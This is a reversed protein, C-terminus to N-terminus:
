NECSNFDNFLNDTAEKNSIESAKAEAMNTLQTDDASATAVVDNSDKVDEATPKTTAEADKIFDGDQKMIEKKFNNKDLTIAATNDGSQAAAPSILTITKGDNNLIIMVEGNKMIVKKDPTLQEFEVSEAQEQKKANVFRDVDFGEPVLNANVLDIAKNEWANLEELTTVFQYDYQLQNFEKYSPKEAVSELKYRKINSVESYKEELNTIPDSTSIDKYEGRFYTNHKGSILKGDKVKFEWYETFTETSPASITIIGNQIPFTIPEVKVENLLPTILLDYKDYIKQKEVADNPDSMAAYEAQEEARYDAIKQKNAEIDPVSSKQKNKEADYAKIAETLGNEDDWKKTIADLEELTIKKNNSDIIAQRVIKDNGRLGVLRQIENNLRDLESVPAATTYKALLDKVDNKDLATRILDREEPSMSEVQEKTFGLGIGKDILGQSAATGLPIGAAGGAPPAIYPKTSYSAAQESQLDLQFEENTDLNKIIVLEEETGEETPFPASRSIIEIPVDVFDEIGNKTPVQGSFMFKAGKIYDKFTKKIPPPPVIEPKSLKAGENFKNILDPVTSLNELVFSKFGDSSAVAADDDSIKRENDLEYSRYANILSKFLEPANKKIDELSTSQKIPESIGPAAAVKVEPTETVTTEPTVIIPEVGAKIRYKEIIEQSKIYKADDKALVKKNIADYLVTPQFAILNDVDEPLVFVGEANDFLENLMDNSQSMKRFSDLAKKLLEIRQENVMEQVSVQINKYYQFYEPNSLKNITNVMKRSDISLLMFDKIDRFANNLDDDFVYGDKVNATHQLYKGFVEYMNNIAFSVDDGKEAFEEPTENASAFLSPADKTVTLNDVKITKIKGAKTKVKAKGNKVEVIVFEEGTKSHKVAAEPVLRKLEKRKVAEEKSWQAKQDSKVQTVFHNSADDWEELLEIQKKINEAEKVQQPTGKEMISVQTKLNTLTQGRQIPDILMSVDQAAANAIATGAKNVNVLNKYKSTQGVLHQGIDSMRKAIREYDETAFLLDSVAQEHAAYAQYEAKFEQPNARLDYMWPNHPNPLKKQVYDYKNQYSKANDKLANLKIRMQPAQDEKLQFSDALESDTLTLLDDVHETVLGTNGTKALTHLYNIQTEDGMDHALKLDGEELAAKKAENSIKISSAANQNDIGAAFSKNLNNFINNASNLVQNDTEEAQKKARESASEKTEAEKGTITEKIASYGSTLGSGSAKVAAGGAGILSGMLFGQFFTDIGQGSLQSKFGEGISSMSNYYGSQTPDSYVKTYHDMAANQIVEQANEQIAEGLNGLIYKRSWPVYSSKTLFDKVKQGKTLEGAKYTASGVKWEKAASKELKRGSGKMFAEAIKAGPRIGEFLDEFALKNTFYITLDNSLTITAKDKQAANNIRIAEAEDPMVGNQNFYEDVRKDQFDAAGSEGEMKAESHALNLERLDRYFAGFTQTTKALAGLNKVGKATNFLETTNALPNAWKAINVATEAGKSMTFFERAKAAKSMDKIFNYTGTIGEGLKGFLMANRAMQPAIAGSAAGFTMTEIGWLAANEIALEGIIGVTYASNLGFNTLWAGAGGRTSNGIAMGRAMEQSAVKSDGWVSKLGSYALNLWQGRMRNFDDWGSSKENYVVDNNRFPNFGLKKYAPSNYFREFNLAKSSSGFAFSKAYRHDDQLGSGSEILNKISNAYDTTGKKSVTDHNAGPMTGTYYNGVLETNIGINQPIGSPMIPAIYPTPTQLEALPNKASQLEFSTPTVEPYVLEDQTNATEEAM